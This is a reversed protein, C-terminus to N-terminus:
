HNSLLHHLVFTQQRNLPYLSCQWTQNCKQWIRRRRRRRSSRRSKSVGFISTPTVVDCLVINDNQHDSDSKDLLSIRDPTKWPRNFMKSRRTRRQYKDGTHIRGRLNKEWHTQFALRLLRCWCRLTKNAIPAELTEWSANSPNPEHCDDGSGPLGWCGDVHM